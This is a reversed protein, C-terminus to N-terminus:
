VFNVKDKKIVSGNLFLQYSIDCSRSIMFNVGCYKTMSSEVAKIAKEAAIDGHLDFTILATKFHIPHETTKEVNINLNFSNINLRMKKLIAVVDMATCGMMANIVLEKPTPHQEHGGHEPTSDTHTIIGHNNIEFLQEGKWTMSANMHTNM